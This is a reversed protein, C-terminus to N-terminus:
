KLWLITNFMCYLKLYSTFSVKTFIDMLCKPWIHRHNCFCKPVFYIPVHKFALCFVHCLLVNSLKSHMNWFIHVMCKSYIPLALESNRHHAMQHLSPSTEEPMRTQKLLRLCLNSIELVLGRFCSLLVTIFNKKKKM